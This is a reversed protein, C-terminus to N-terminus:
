LWRWRLFCCHGACVASGLVNVAKSKNKNTFQSVVVPSLIKM